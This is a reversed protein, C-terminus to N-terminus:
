KGKRAVPIEKSVQTERRPMRITLIGAEYEAKIEDTNCSMPLLMTRSYNGYYFESHRDAREEHRREANIKLQNGEVNIHIDEDPNMGPLECRIVFEEGETFTEARMAHHEGFPWEGEFMRFIDALGMGSRPQLSTM